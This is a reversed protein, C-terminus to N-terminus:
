ADHSDTELVLKNTVNGDLETIGVGLYASSALGERKKWM